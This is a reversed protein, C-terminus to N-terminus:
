CSIIISDRAHLSHGFNWACVCPLSVVRCVINHRRCCSLLILVLHSIVTNCWNLLLLCCCCCRHPLLFLLANARDARRRDVPYDPYIASVAAAPASDILVRGVCGPLSLSLRGTQRNSSSSNWERGSGPEVVEEEGENAATHVAVSTKTKELERRCRKWYYCCM